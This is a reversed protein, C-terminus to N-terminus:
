FKEFGGDAVCFKCTSKRFQEELFTLQKGKDQFFFQKQHYIPNLGILDVNGDIKKYFAGCEDVIEPYEDNVKGEFARYNTDDRAPNDHNGWVSYVPFDHFQEALLGILINYQKEEARDAIDGVILLVDIDTLKSLAREIPLTKKCLHLDSIIGIKM